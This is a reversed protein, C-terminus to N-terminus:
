GDVSGKMTSLARLSASSKLGGNGRHGAGPDAERAQCSNVGDPRSNEHATPNGVERIEISGQRPSPIETQPAQERGHVKELGFTPNLVVLTIPSPLRDCLITNVGRSVYLARDAEVTVWRDEIREILGRMEDTM